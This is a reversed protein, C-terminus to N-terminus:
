EMGVHRLITFKFTEDHASAMHHLLLSCLVRRIWCFPKGNAGPGALNEEQVAGIDQSYCLM